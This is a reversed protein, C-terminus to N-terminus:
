RAGRELERRLTVPLDRGPHQKVWREAFTMGGWIGWPEANALAHAGCQTVVPCGACMAKAATERNRRVQPPECSGSPPFFMDLHGRCVARSQWGARPMTATATM